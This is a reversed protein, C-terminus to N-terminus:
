RQTMAGRRAEPLADHERVRQASGDASEVDRRKAGLLGFAISALSVASPLIEGGGARLIAAGFLGAVALSPLDLRGGSVTMMGGDLSKIGTALADALRQSPPGLQERGSFSPVKVVPCGQREAFALLEQASGDHLVLLTGTMPSLSVHSVKPHAGLAQALQALSGRRKNEGALGLRLRGTSVHRVEIPTVM